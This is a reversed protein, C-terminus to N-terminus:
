ANPILKAFADYSMDGSQKQGNILFTPTSDIGYKKQDAGQEAIIWDRLAIDDWAADFTARNLGALAALKWIEGKTDVGQTFAWRDQSSLLAIVFPAYREPPLARAVMAAQLAVRDLPFDHFVWRVKGTDILNKEVDPFTNQAFAACHTCTLSFFERVETKADAKGMMRPTEWAQTQIVTAPVVKDTQARALVPVVLGVAAFSLLSRRHIPM